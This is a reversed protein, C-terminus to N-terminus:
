KSDLAGSGDLSGPSQLKELFGNSVQMLPIITEVLKEVEAQSHFTLEAIKLIAQTQTLIPLKKVTAAMDPEDAALAVIEALANPAVTLALKLMMDVDKISPAQDAGLESKVKAFLLTIESFHHAAITSLDTLSIGRVTFTDGGPLDITETPLTYDSLAM